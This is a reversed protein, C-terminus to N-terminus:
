GEVFPNVSKYMLKWLGQPSEGWLHLVKYTYEFSGEEPSAVADNYRENQVQIKTGGPSILELEVTGRFASYRVNVTVLVHELFKMGCDKLGVRIASKGSAEGTVNENVGIPGLVTCSIQEPVTKWKKALGVVEKADLLGFGMKRNFMFGYKNRRWKTEEDKFGRANSGRIIIHQVDRWTLGNNAELMLAIVGAAVPAAFSSGVGATESCEDYPVTSKLSKYHVGGGYASTMINAGFGASPSVEDFEVSAVSIAYISSQLYANANSDSGGNGAAFVFISGNGQRGLTANYAVGVTCFDNGYTAGVIGAVMTGHSITPDDPNPDSDDDYFDYSNDVDMNGLDTHNTQIFTDVIAVTVGAGTYGDAWVAAIKMSYKLNNNLHWLGSLEPDTIPKAKFLHFTKKTQVESFEVQDEEGIETPFTSGETGLRLIPLPSLIKSNDIKLQYYVQGAIEFQKDMVYQPHRQLITNVDDQTGGEKLKIVISAEDTDGTLVEVTVFAAFLWLCTFRLSLQM